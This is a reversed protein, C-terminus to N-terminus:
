KVSAGRADFMKGDKVIYLVGDILMKRAPTSSVQDSPVEEIDTPTNQVPSIEMVFRSTYEGATLHVTYDLASLSTRAGTENDILTVGIGDTGEPMAFTYDGETSIKVGVPVVTTQESMPLTNGAAPLYNEILTYINGKRSNFEKTLDENFVFNASAEEDNSLKVFTQDVMKENQQLELRFEEYMPKEAYTRRAVIPSVPPTASALSWYLDGHYQVMYAHMAKFPYTTGSQVTYSDDTANWEYLFPLDNTYPNTNWTITASSGDSTLTNGYNAYSPVGILNWHADAKTRNKLIDTSTGGSNTRDITCTHEEVTTHATTQSITSINAASPFFLEVQEINNTWFSTNNDKMRDLDIALVYGKGAKLQVGARNTYMKWFGPSDAWYGELARAAGDYYEIVWDVGYTGFGFVDSLNVDFPFSIWYLSREYISKPDGVPSHGDATSKNNLTWRNFRMVGYVTHVESLKGTSTFTLQQGEGQHERIIMLDANIEMPGTIESSPVYATVLRNTKFDYVIRMTHKGAAKGGLLQVSDAVTSGSGGKFYQINNNYKATLKANAGANVKITREYVFNQDDVLNIENANLGSISLANGNEDYMKASGELVLFRDSVNTSGSIYARSIKNTAQDWMFRINASASNLSGAGDNGEATINAIVTGKDEVLTDTICMSYDNAICFKVNTGNTVWHAYYHSYGSTTEAYDSYTMQHDLTRFNEWKTSGACDTRIYYNGTYPEIKEVSITEDAQTLHFNYVGSSSIDNLDITGSPVDTWTIVGTSANISEAYQFKMSANAGTAKSVYFSVIDKAGNEKHIARSEHWWGSAHAEKSWAADDHYVVRYDGVAAPYHVGLLYKYGSNNGFSLTFIYDGAASTRIKGRQGSTLSWAAEEGSDGSTMFKSNNGYVTGDASHIEYGYDRGANLEVSLAMPLTYDATFEFPISQLEDVTNYTTGNYIKLTYGTNEPYNMWYGEFYYEAKNNNKKQATLGTLPVYMPLSTSHDGRRVVQIPNEVTNSFFAKDNDSTNDEGSDAKNMNAFAVNRWGDWGQATYDFYWINTGAIQTMQGYHMDWFQKNNEFEKGKYAGTGFDDAWYKDTSYFYVWVDEWGLTNNFYLVNKKNYVATLTGPYNAKIQISSTTTTTVPDDSDDDKITVGDGADWHDFTYGTITPPTIANEVETWALPRAEVSGSAQLTRGSADQYRVTVTHSGAVQFTTTRTSLVDEPNAPCTSGKALKAQIIYTASATPVPFSVTNGERTFTPQEPLPTGNSYQVEWCVKTTGTPTPEITPTITITEGPAIVSPAAVLNTIEAKKYYAYLTTPSETDKDWNTVSVGTGDYYQTGAGDAADYFGMFAWGNAATPPTVSTMAAAYTATTSNTAGTKSGYGTDSEDFDFNITCSKPVWHAFLAVTGDKTTTLNNVNQGPDYVKAGAAETAWGDFNYGTRTYTNTSLNQAVDYTFEQNSMADGTGGNANFSVSYNNPTFTATLNATNGTTGTATITTAAANAPTISIYDSSESWITGILHYGIAPVATVTPHTDVGASVSIVAGGGSTFTGKGTPSAVLNVTTMNETYAPAITGGNSATAISTSTVGEITTSTELTVNSLSWSSFTYGAAATATIPDGVKVYQTGTGPTIASCGTPQTITVKYPAVFSQVPSSKTEGQGNIAYAQYYYTTGATVSLNHSIAGTHDTTGKQEKTGPTSSTGWYFGYDTIADNGNSSISGNITAATNTVSTAASATVTPKAPCNVTSNLALVGTGSAIEYCGGDAMSAYTQDSNKNNTNTGDVFIFKNNSSYLVVQKWQGSGYDSIQDDEGPFETDARDGDWRHMYFPYWGNTNKVKITKKGYVKLTKTDSYTVADYTMTAKVYYTTTATVAPITWAQTTSSTASGITTWSSNDTSYQYTINATGANQRSANITVTEGSNVATVTSADQTFSSVAVSPTVTSQYYITLTTEAGSLDDASNYYKLKVRMSQKTTTPTITKTTTTSYEDSGWKVYLVSNADTSAQSGSVTFTITNGDAVSFPSGEAGTGTGNSTVAGGSVAPVAIKWNLSHVPSTLMLDPDYYYFSMTYLGSGLGALLNVNLGSISNQETASHGIKPFCMSPTGGNWGGKDTWNHNDTTYEGISANTRHISYKLVTNSNWLDKTEYMHAFWEKLYLTTIPALSNVDKSQSSTVSTTLRMEQDSGDYYKIGNGYTSSYELQFGYDLKDGSDGASENVYHDGNNYSYWGFGNWKDTWKSTTTWSSSVRMFYVYKSSASSPVEASYWETGAVQTMAVFSQDSSNDYGYCIAFKAGDKKWDDSPHLYFTKAWMQGMGLTLLTILTFLWRAKSQVISKLNLKLTKKARLSARNVVNKM